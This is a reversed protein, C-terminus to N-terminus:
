NESTTGLLNRLGIGFPVHFARSCRLSVVKQAALWNEWLSFSQPLSFRKSRIGDGLAPGHDTLGALAEVMPVPLVIRVISLGWSGKDM